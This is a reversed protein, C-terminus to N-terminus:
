YINIHYIPLNLINLLYRDLSVANYKYEIGSNLSLQPLYPGPIWTSGHVESNEASSMWITVTTISLPSVM